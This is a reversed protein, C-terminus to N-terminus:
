QTIGCCRLFTPGYLVQFRYIYKYMYICIYIYIYIYTYVFVCIYVYIYIHLYIYTYIYIGTVLTIYGKSTYQAIAHLKCRLQCADVVVVIREGFENCLKEVTELSPYVLGTKSGLVVHLVVINETIELKARIDDYLVNEQFNVIGNKGRGKFQVVKVRDGEGELGTLFGNNEQKHGKPALPSFHRGGISIYIYIYIYVYKYIFIYTYIYVHIYIYIYICIYIHICIYM